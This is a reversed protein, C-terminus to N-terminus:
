SLRGMHGYNVQWKCSQWMGTGVCSPRRSLNGKTEPAPKPVRPAKAFLLQEAPAGARMIHMQMNKAPAGGGSGADAQRRPSTASM